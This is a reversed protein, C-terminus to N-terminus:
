EHNGGQKKLYMQVDHYFDNVLTASDLFQYPFEQTGMHKHDGKGRENDYRVLCNGESDGFYLRYKLGHAREPTIQPLLWIVTELVSGDDFINKEKLLLKAKM